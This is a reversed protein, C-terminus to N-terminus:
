RRHAAGRQTGADLTVATSRVTALQLNVGTSPLNLTVGFRGDSLAAQLTIGLLKAYSSVIALGLGSHSADSRAADKRWFPDFLSPLDEPTLQDTANSITICAADDKPDVSCAISSGAPSYNVANSFLNSLIHKLMMRDTSIAANGEIQWESTLGKAAAQAQHPTWAEKILDSLLFTSSQIAETGAECRAITLLATVVSEMQRAIDLAENFNRANGAGDTPWRLAVEAMSRLEAIPTRLEHAVDSSFRRERVFADHLRSLLDNLRNCIPALEAPMLDPALRDDLSDAHIREVATAIQRLPLLGRRVGYPIGISIGISLLAATIFLSTLITELTDDIDDRDHALLFILPKSAAIAAPSTAPVDDDDLEPTFTLRHVRAWRGDPLEADFSNVTLDTLHPVIDFSGLSSSRLLPTGDSKFVEFVDRRPHRGRHSEIVPEDSELTVRGDVHLRVTGCLLRSEADMSHDLQHILAFRVYAYLAGGAILLLVLTTGLVSLTVRRQISKM